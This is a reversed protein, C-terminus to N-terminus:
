YFFPLRQSTDNQAIYMLIKVQDEDDSGLNPTLISNVKSMIDEPPSIEQEIPTKVIYKHVKKKYQNKILFSLFESFELPDVADDTDKQIQSLMNLVWYQCFFIGTDQLDTRSQM